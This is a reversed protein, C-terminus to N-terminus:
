TTFLRLRPRRHTRLTQCLRLRLRFQLTATRLYQLKFGVIQEIQRFLKARPLTYPFSGQSLSYFLAGVTRFELRYYYLFYVIRVFKVLFQLFLVLVIQVTVFSLYVYLALNRSYQLRVFVLYRQSQAPCESQSRFRLLFLLRLRLLRLRLTAFKARSAAYLPRVLSNILYQSVFANELRLYKPIQYVVILLSLFQQLLDIFVVVTIPIYTIYIYSTYCLMYFAAVFIRVLYSLAIAPM